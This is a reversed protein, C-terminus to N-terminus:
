YSCCVVLGEECDSMRMIKYRRDKLVRSNGHFSDGYGYFSMAFLFSLNSSERLRYCSCSRNWLFRVPLLRFLFCTDMYTHTQINGRTIDRWAHCAMCRGNYSKAGSFECSIEPTNRRRRCCSSASGDSSSFKEEYMFFCCLFVIIAYLALVLLSFM